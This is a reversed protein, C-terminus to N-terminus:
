VFTSDSFRLNLVVQFVQAHITLYCITNQVFVVVSHQISENVNCKLGAEAKQSFLLLIELKIFLM